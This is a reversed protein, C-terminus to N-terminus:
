KAGFVDELLTYAMKPKFRRQVRSFVNLVSIMHGNIVLLKRFDQKGALYM